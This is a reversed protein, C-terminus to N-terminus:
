LWKPNNLSWEVVSTIRDHLSIKPTWGGTVLVRKYNMSNMTM